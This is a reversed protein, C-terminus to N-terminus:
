NVLEVHRFIAVAFCLQALREVQLADNKVAVADNSDERAVALIAHALRLRADERGTDDFHEAIEAWGADFAEYIVHLTEPAFESSEILRRAKVAM